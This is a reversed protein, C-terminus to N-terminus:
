QLIKDLDITLLSTHKTTEYVAEGRDLFNVMRIIGGHTILLTEEDSHKNNIKKFFSVIRNKVQELSEGGYPTYDFRVSRHKKKLEMGDEMEEWSKGALSGMKIETLENVFTIPLNLRSSIIEATQRARLLPSSYIYAVSKPIQSIIQKAQEIGETALPEDIEGNVKKEKNLPTIGHRIIYVKM